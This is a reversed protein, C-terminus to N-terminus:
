ADLNPILYPLADLNVTADALAVPHQLPSM